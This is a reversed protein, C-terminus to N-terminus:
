DKGLYKKGINVVRKVESLLDYFHENIYRINDNKSEMEHNYAIEALVDCGLYKADSKTAHALIAYNAM